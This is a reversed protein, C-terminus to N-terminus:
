LLGGSSCGPEFILNKEIYYGSYYGNLIGAYFVPPHCALLRNPPLFGSIQRLQM